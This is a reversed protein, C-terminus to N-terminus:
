NSFDYLREPNDQMIKKFISAENVIKSLEEIREPINFKRYPLLEPNDSIEGRHVPTHPWDSGWVLRDPNKQIYYKLL